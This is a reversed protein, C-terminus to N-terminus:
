ASCARGGHGTVGTPTFALKMCGISSAFALKPAAEQQLSLQAPMGSQKSCMMQTKICPPMMNLVAPLRKTSSSDVLSLTELARSAHTHPLVHPGRSTARNRCLMACLNSCCCVRNGCFDIHSCEDARSEPQWFDFM